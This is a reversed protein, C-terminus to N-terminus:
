ARKRDPTPLLAAKRAEESVVVHEYRDASKRDRWAGTAVLGKLDRKVDCGPPTRTGFSTFHAASRCTSALKSILGSGIGIELVRGEAAPIIRSRYAALNRQRMSLQDAFSCNSEPLVGSATVRDKLLDAMRRKPEASTGLWGYSGHVKGPEGPQLRHEQM